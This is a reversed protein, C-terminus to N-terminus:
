YYRYLTLGPELGSSVIFILEKRNVKRPGAEESVIVPSDLYVWRRIGYGGPEGPVPRGDTAVCHTNWTPREPIQWM